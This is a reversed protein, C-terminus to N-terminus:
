CGPWSGHWLSVLSVIPSSASRPTMPHICHGAGFHGTWTEDAGRRHGVTSCHAACEWLVRNPRDHASGPSLGGSRHAQRDSDPTKSAKDRVIELGWVLGQGRADGLCDFRRKMEEYRHAMIRGMAEANEWLRQGMIVDVNALAVRSCFANGGHTSSLTGPELVDMIRAEGVVASVPVSSSVGKGLCLLQPTVGHHEFGFLKGTRGFSAQVEDVIFLAERELCWQAVGQMWERPPIISGAGGQYTETIVCAIRGETQTEAVWDLSKLCYCGCDPYVKDFFCRYCYPFYAHYIQPVFPGFGRNSAGSHKGGATMAGFTRGHFAGSFALIEPKGTFRRAMKMSAETAEAGTTLLFAKDLNKPTIEVLRRALQSRYANPFDYCNVLKGAQDQMAQVLAPHSHGVNAVLVGSTFDLFVDGDVDEVYVGEARAWVVPVQESMSHPEFRASESLIAQAKPGPFDPNVRIKM